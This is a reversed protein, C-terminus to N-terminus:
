DQNSYMTANGQHMLIIAAPTQAEVSQIGVMMLCVVSLLIKKM